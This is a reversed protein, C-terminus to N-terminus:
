RCVLFQALVQEQLFIIVAAICQSRPLTCRLSVTRQEDGERVRFNHELLSYMIRGLGFSPEIVSPTLDEAASQFFISLLFISSFFM